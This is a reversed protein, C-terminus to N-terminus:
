QQAERIQMEEWSIVEADEPIQEPSFRAADERCDGNWDQRHLWDCIGCEYFRRREPEPEIRVRRMEIKYVGQPANEQYERLRRLIAKRSDEATEESWIKGGDYSALLNWEDRTKRQRM